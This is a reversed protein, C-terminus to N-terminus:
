QQPEWKNRKRSNEIATIVQLNEAVHLGSVAEGQLPIVHDVHHSVGTRRSVEVARRYVEKIEALDAWPPTRQLKIARRKNAHFNIVARSRGPERERVPAPEPIAIHSFARELAAGPLGPAPRGSAAPARGRLWAKCEELGYRKSKGIPTCPMGELELRRVTSESINLAACLQQRTMSASM